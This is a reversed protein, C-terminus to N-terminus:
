KARILDAITWPMSNYLEELINPAVSYWAACVRMWMDGKKCPRQNGIGKQMINLVNKIPNIDPFNGPWELIPLGKCGLFTRTSKTNHCPALGHVFIYDRQTFVVCACAMEIDHFIDSQYKASDM